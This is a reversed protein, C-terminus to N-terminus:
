FGFYKNYKNKSEEDRFVFFLPRFWAEQDNKFWVEYGIVDKEIINDENLYWTEFFDIRSILNPMSVSDCNWRAEGTPKGNEGYILVSDCEILRAL